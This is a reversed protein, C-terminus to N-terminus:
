GHQQTTVMNQKGDIQVEEGKNEHWDKLTTYVTYLFKYDSKTIKKCAM